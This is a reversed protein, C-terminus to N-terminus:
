GQKQLEHSLPHHLKQHRSQVITVRMCSVVNTEKRVSGKKKGSTFLVKEREVGSLEKQSKVVAGTGIKERRADFNRLRFKQDISRKVMTKLRQYEPRSIKQLIEMDYLELVTKLQDSGRVRLRYVRELVDDSPIKM